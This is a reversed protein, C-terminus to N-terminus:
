SNDKNVKSPEGKVVLYSQRPLLSQLAILSLQKLQLYTQIDIQDSVLMQRYKEQTEQLLSLASSPQNQLKTQWEDILTLMNQIEERHQKQQLIRCQDALVQTMRGAQDYIEPTMAGDILMLRHQQRLQEINVLTQALDKDMLSRLESVAKRTAKILKESKKRNWRRLMYGILSTGIFMTAGAQLPKNEQLYRLFADRPDGNTFVSRSAPHIYFLGRELLAKGDGTALEPYFVSFLRSSSIISWTLLSVKQSNTDPRTVLVTSTSFTAIDEAPLAPSANYIGVPITAAQYAGPNQVTFYNILGSPIALLRLNPTASLENRLKENTGLSGVYVIADIQKDKIKKFADDFGSEDAIIQMKAAEFLQTATFYIGSEPNGIAIRKGQLDNFTKIGADNRAILHVYEKALVAVAQVKNQRMAESVVDLQALAFDTQKDLLRQLNEKSGSSEITQLNMSVVQKASNSVQQSLRSYYGGPIGSSLSASDNASCSVLLVITLLLCGAISIKAWIKQYIQQGLKGLKEM